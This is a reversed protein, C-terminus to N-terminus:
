PIIQTTNDDGDTGGGGGCGSGAPRKHRKQWTIGVVVCVLAIVVM